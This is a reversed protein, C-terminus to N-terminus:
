DFQHFFLVRTKHPANDRKFNRFDERNNITRRSVRSGGMTPAAPDRWVLAVARGGLQSSTLEGTAGGGIATPEARVFILFLQQRNDFCERWFSYLYKRDVSHLPQSLSIDNALFITNNDNIQSLDDYKQWLLDSWAANMDFTTRGTLSDRIADVIDALEDNSMQAVPSQGFSYTNMMETAAGERPNGDNDIFKSTVLTNKHGGSQRQNGNTSAVYYDFPTGVIAASMVRNDESFPNLKFGGVGSVITVDPGETGAGIQKLKFPNIGITNYGSSTVFASYTNYYIGVNAFGDRGTKAKNAAFGGIRNAFSNQPDGTFVTLDALTGLQNINGNGDFEHLVPLFQLEGVSQLYEQDSVFMFFDRDRGDQGFVTSSSGNLGLQTMWESKSAAPSNMAFWDEPAYNFRPDVAYLAGWAFPVDNGTCVAQPTAWTFDVTNMFNLTPAGNGCLRQTVGNDPVNSGLCEIDDLVTAPVMDVVKGGDLVQVWVSAYLRYKGPLATAADFPTVGQPYPQNQFNGGAAATWAPDVRGDVTLPRFATNDNVFNAISQYSAMFNAPAPVPTGGGAQASPSVANGETIEWYLPMQLNMNPFQLLISDDVAQNVTTVDSNFQGLSAPASVFTAVGGAAVPNNNQWNASLPHLIVNPDAPRCSMGQPAAYVRLLGRVSYSKGNMRQTTQMRKFPYCTVLKVMARGLSFDIGKQQCTRTITIDNIAHSTGDSDVYSGAVNNVQQQVPQGVNTFDLKLMAPASVGVVMPVAEVTPLALSMPVNDSDLYDYLSVIGVGLNKLFIEGIQDQSNLTPSIAVDLFGNASNYERFPQHAGSLDYVKNTSTDTPFWTDTIFLGNATMTDSGSLMNAGSSGIYNMFPAYNYASAGAAVLNFDALSTFPTVNGGVTKSEMEELVSELTSVNGSNIATPNDPAAACLSSLAIRCSGSNRAVDARLRNIDFLDSVNVATYAYRGAEYPLSRWQATRTLRSVKRVDDIIAPPLYALAELTLTPVTLFPEQLATTNSRPEPLTGFPCFVRHFWYDGNRTYQTSYSGKTNIMQYKRSGSSRANENMDEGVGPYPDDHIGFFLGSEPNNSNDIGIEYRSMFGGDLEDIANALAAKVLYRSAVNRRLYSSPLRGQRMYISCGVASVVMFSLMGLVILLASGRRSHSINSQEITRNNSHISTSTKM